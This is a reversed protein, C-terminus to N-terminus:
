GSAAPYRQSLQFFLGICLVARLTTQGQSPLFSSGEDGNGLQFCGCGGLDWGAVGWGKGPAKELHSSLSYNKIEM